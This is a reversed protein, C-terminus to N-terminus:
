AGIHCLAFRMNNWTYKGKSPKVNQLDLDTILDILNEFFPDKIKSGGKKERSNLHTNFDSSIICSSLDITKKLMCLSNWCVTKEKYSNPM